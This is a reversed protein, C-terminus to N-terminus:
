FKINLIKFIDNPNSFEYKFSSVKNSNSFEYKGESIKKKSDFDINKL